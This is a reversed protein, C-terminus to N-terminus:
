RKVPVKPLIHHSKNSKPGWLKKALKKQKRRNHPKPGRLARTLKKMARNTKEMAPLFAETLTKAMAQAANTLVQHAAAGQHLLSRNHYEIGEETNLFVAGDIHCTAMRSRSDTQDNMM